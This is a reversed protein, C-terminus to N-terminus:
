KHKHFSKKVSQLQVVISDKFLGKVLIDDVIENVQVMHSQGKVILLGIKKKNEHSTVIGNYVIPPFVVVKPVIPIPIKKMKARVVGFSGLFPDRYKKILSFSYETSDISISIPKTEIRDFQNITPQTDNFFKYFIYGWIGVVVLLLLYTLQKKKV